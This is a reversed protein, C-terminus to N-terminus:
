QFLQKIKDIFFYKKSKGFKQGIGFWIKTNLLMRNRIIFEEQYPSALAALVCDVEVGNIRNLIMDDSIGHEELTASEVIIINKGNKMVQAKLKTLMDKNEAFLFVKAHNKHLLRAFMKIFLRSEAEKLIKEDSEGASLLVSRGGSLVLDFREMQEKIDDHGELADLTEPTIWEIVHVTETNLYKVSLEMAEKVTLRDIKVGSLEIRENM